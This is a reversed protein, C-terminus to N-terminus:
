KISIISIQLGFGKEGNLYARRNSFFAEGTLTDQRTEYITEIGVRKLRHVVYGPLNFIHHGSKPSQKFFRANDADQEQFPLLFAGSVEYSDAGICPGIAVAIDEPPAGRRKMAAVVQEPVGGLAGKWGAHCIGVIKDKKSAFMVPVCDATLVGLGMGREATVMGDSEPANKPVWPKRVTVVKTSHTQRAVVLRDPAIDLAAAALARNTRVNNRKDDKKFGCNLSTYLGSSVGGERTFFGHQVWPIAALDTTLHKM